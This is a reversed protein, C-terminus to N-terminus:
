KNPLSVDINIKSWKGEENINLLKKTFVSMDKTTEKPIYLDINYHIKKYDRIIDGSIKSKRGIAEINKFSILGKNIFIDMKVYDFNLISLSPDGSAESLIDLIAFLNKGKLNVKEIYCDIIFKKKLLSISKPNLTAKETTLRFNNKDFIIRDIKLGKLIKFTFNEFEINAKYSKEIKTELM